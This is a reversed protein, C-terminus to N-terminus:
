DFTGARHPPPGFRNTDPDSKMKYAAYGTVASAILFSLLNPIASLRSFEEMQAALVTQDVADPALIAGMLESSLDIAEPAMLQLLLGGAIASVVLWMLVFGLWLWASQGADHLRKGFVCIYPFVLVYQLLNVQPSVLSSLATIVLMAGTLLIFGQGFARPSLRGQPSFFLFRFDM